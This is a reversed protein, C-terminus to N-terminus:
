SVGTPWIERFKFMVRRDTLRHIRESCLKSCKGAFYFNVRKLTKRSWAAMVGCLNYMYISPFENGLPGEVPHRTGNEGNSDIWLWEGPRYVEYVIFRGRFTRRRRVRISPLWDCAALSSRSTLWTVSPQTSHLFYAARACIALCKLGFITTHANWGICQVAM